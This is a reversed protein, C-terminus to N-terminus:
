RPSSNNKLICSKKSIFCLAALMILGAILITITKGIARTNLATVSIIVTITYFFVAIQRQSWNLGLLKYHLHSRDPRFISKKNKLREVVVWLFDILPISLILISTAIKTGAFIALTALAFGMFTSGATGALAFAPNFNFILFGLTAGALIMALIAMPPQNVEPKLSLFFITLAGIFTIGGSLGDTGDVWNMANILMITWVLVLLASVVIGIGSSFEIIGGTFPNTMYYIRVGFIFVLIVAAVQFLFQSKWFMEKIDDLIGGVLLVLSGAMMGYLPATMVLDKNLLISLNFALIIAIGGIRLIGRRHIHRESDRGKWSIRKGVYRGLTILIVSIFFAILFPILYKVV